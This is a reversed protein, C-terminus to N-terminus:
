ASLRALSKPGECYLDKCQLSMHLNHQGLDKWANRATLPIFLMRSFCVELVYKFQWIQRSCTIEHLDVSGISALQCQHASAHPRICSHSLTTIVQGAPPLRVHLIQIYSIEDKTLRVTSFIMYPLLALSCSGRDRQVM